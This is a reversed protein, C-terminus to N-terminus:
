RSVYGHSALINILNRGFHGAIVTADNAADEAAHMSALRRDLFDWTCRLDPSRDECMYLESALYAAALASRRLYWDARVSCDGALRWLRAALDSLSRMALPVNEPRALLAAAEPWRRIHPQTQRLRIRCLLRLREAPAELEHLQDDAEICTEDLARDMFHAVLRAGGGGGGGVGAAMASLGLDAAAAGIARQTWGFEDVRALARDLLELEANSPKAETPRATVYRRVPLQARRLVIRPHM